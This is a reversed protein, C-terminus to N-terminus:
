FKYGLRHMANLAKVLHESASENVDGPVADVGNKYCEAVYWAAWDIGRFLDIVDTPAKIDELKQLLLNAGSRCLTEELFDVPLVPAERFARIDSKKIVLTQPEM